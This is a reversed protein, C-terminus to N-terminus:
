IPISVGKTLIVDVQRLPNIEVVPVIEKALDTYYQAINQFATGIPASM